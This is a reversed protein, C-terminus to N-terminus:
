PEAMRGSPWLRAVTGPQSLHSDVCYGYKSFRSWDTDLLRIRRLTVPLELTPGKVEIVGGQLPLEREGYGLESAVMSSRINYDFSVRTGTLMENFRYRWYAIAIIPRLPLKPYYGFRTSIDVLVTKDIIGAGLHAMELQQASVLLRQRQKSSAFGQRSKLELFVPLMEQCDSIEGYWRIRVKDKKFDGSASRFYQDLDATDFYLSNVQGEPYESDPRCVHRLLTYAFGINKPLIFFKREFRQAPQATEATAKDM